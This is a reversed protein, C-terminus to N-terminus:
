VEGLIEKKWPILKQEIITRIEQDLQFKDTLHTVLLKRLNKGSPVCINSEEAASRYKRGQDGEYIATTNLEKQPDGQQAAVHVALTYYYEIERKNLIVCDYGDQVIKNKFKTSWRWILRFRDNKLFIKKIKLFM